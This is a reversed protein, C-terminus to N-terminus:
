IVKINSSLIWKQIHQNEENSFRGFVYKDFVHLVIGNYGELNENSENAIIEIEDGCYIRQNEHDRVSSDEKQHSLESIPSVVRLSNDILLIETKTDTTKMIVGVFGDNLRVLHGEEHLFSNKCSDILSQSYKQNKFREFQSEKSNPDSEYISIENQVVRGHPLKPKKIQQKQVIKFKSMAQQVEMEMTTKLYNKEENTIAIQARPDIKKIVIGRKDLDSENRDRIFKIIKQYKDVTWEIDEIPEREINKCLLMKDNEFIEKQENTLLVNMQLCIIRVKTLLFGGSFWMGKYGRCLVTKSGDYLIKKETTTLLLDHADFEASNFLKPKDSTRGLVEINLRPVVRVIAEKKKLNVDLVQCIDNQYPGVTMRAYTNFLHKMVDSLWTHMFHLFIFDNPVNKTHFYPHIQNICDLEDTEFFIRTPMHPLIFCCKCHDRMYFSEAFNTLLTFIKTRPFDIYCFKTKGFDKLLKIRLGDIFPSRNKSSILLNSYDLEKETELDNSINDFNPESFDSEQIIDFFSTLSKSYTSYLDSSQESAKTSM